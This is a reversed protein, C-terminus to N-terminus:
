ILRQIYNTVEHSTRGGACRLHARAPAQQELEHFLLLGDGEVGRATTGHFLSMRN